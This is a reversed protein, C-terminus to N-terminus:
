IEARELTRPQFNNQSRSSGRLNNLNSSSNYQQYRLNLEDPEVKPTISASRSRRDRSNRTMSLRDRRMINSPKENESMLFNQEYTSLRRTPSQKVHVNKIFSQSVTSGRLFDKEIDDETYSINSKNLYVDTRGYNGSKNFNPDRATNPNLSTNSPKQTKMPIKSQKRPQILPPFVKYNRNISVNNTKNGNNESVFASKRYDEDLNLSDLASSDNENHSNDGSTLATTTQTTASNTQTSSSHSPVPPAKPKRHSVIPKIPDTLTGTTNTSPLTIKHFPEKKSKKSSNTSNSKSSESPKEGTEQLKRQMAMTEFAHIVSGVHTNVDPIGLHGPGAGSFLDRQHRLASLVLDADNQTMAFNQNLSAYQANQTSQM